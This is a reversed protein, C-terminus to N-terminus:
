IQTMKMQKKRIIRMKTWEMIKKGLSQLAKKEHDGDDEDSELELIFVFKVMLLFKYENPM